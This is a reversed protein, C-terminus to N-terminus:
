SADGVESSEHEHVRFATVTLEDLEGRGGVEEVVWLVLPCLSVDGAPESLPKGLSVNSLSSALRRSATTRIPVSTSDWISAASSARRRRSPAAASFTRVWSWYRFSSKRWIRSCTNMIM